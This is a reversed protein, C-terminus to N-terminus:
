APEITIAFTNATVVEPDAGARKGTDLADVAAMDQGTLEIDFVDFNEAIRQARVSKPIPSVGHQLHWALILQAATKGHRSAIETIVPHTLPSGACDAAAAPNRDFVGGIPSWAQTIIGLDDNAHHVQQQTLFPHLEIQNVAPVVETQATLRTLHEASFNSVGIARVRGEALLKELARWADLTQDFATPVPWHL